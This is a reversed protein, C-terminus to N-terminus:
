SGLPEGKTARGLHMHWQVSRLSVIDTSLHGRLDEGGKRQDTGRVALLTNHLFFPAVPVNFSWLHSRYVATGRDGDSKDIARVKSGCRCGGPANKHRPQQVVLSGLLVPTEGKEFRSVQPSLAKRFSDAVLLRPFPAVTRNMRLEAQVVGLGDVRPEM